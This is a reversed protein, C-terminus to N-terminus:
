SRTGGTRHKRRLAEPPRVPRGAPDTWAFLRLSHGEPDQLRVERYGEEPNEVPAGVAVGHDILRERERDLDPVQFVLRVKGPGALGRAEKVGQLGVRGHGASFLAFEHPSDLLIPTLGLTNIYWQVTTQWHVVRIVTMFLELHPPGTAELPGPESIDSM